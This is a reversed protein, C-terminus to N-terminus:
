PPMVHPRGIGSYPPEKGIIEGVQDAAAPEVHEPETSAPVQQEVQQDVIRALELAGERGIAFVLRVSKENDMDSFRRVVEGKNGMTWLNALEDIEADEPAAPTSNNVNEEGAGPIKDLDTEEQEGLIHRITSQM